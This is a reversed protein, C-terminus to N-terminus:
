SIINEKFLQKMYVVRINNFVKFKVTKYEILFTDNKTKTQKTISHVNESVSIYIDM